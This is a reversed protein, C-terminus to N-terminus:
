PLTAFQAPAAVFQQLTTNSSFLYLRNRYWAAHALSGAVGRDGESLRVIDQGGVAPVYLRPNAEFAQQAEASSFQYERGAFVSTFENSSPILERQDALAVPCYGLFGSRSGRLNSIARPAKIPTAELSRKSSTGQPQNLPRQRIPQSELTRPDLTRGTYPSDFSSELEQEAGDLADTTGTSEETLEDETEADDMSDLPEDAEISLSEDGDAPPAMPTSTTPERRATTTIRGQAAVSERTTSRRSLPAPDDPLDLSDRGEVSGREFFEGAEDPSPPLVVEKPSTDAPALAVPERRRVGETTSKPASLNPTKGGFAEVPRQKIPTLDRQTLLESDKKKSKAGTVRSSRPLEEPDPQADRGRGFMRGFLGPRADATRTPAQSRGSRTSDGDGYDDSLDAEVGDDSRGQDGSDLTARGTAPPATPRSSSRGFLRRGFQAEATSHSSVVAGCALAVISLRSVVRSVHTM